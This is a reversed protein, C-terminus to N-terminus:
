VGIRSVYIRVERDVIEDISSVKFRSDRLLFGKRIEDLSSSSGSLIIVNKRGGLYKEFDLYTLKKFELGELNPLYTFSFVGTALIRFVLDEDLRPEPVTYIYFIENDIYKSIYWDQFSNAVKAKSNSMSCNIRFLCTSFNDSTSKVELGPILNLLLITASAIMSLRIRLYKLDVKQIVRKRLNIMLFYLCILSIEFIPDFYTINIFLLTFFIYRLSRISIHKEFLVLLLFHTTFVFPALYYLAALSINANFVIQYVAYLAMLVTSILLYRYIFVFHVKQFSKKVLLITFALIFPLILIFIVIKKTGLVSWPVDYVATELKFFYVIWNWSIRQFFITQFDMGRSLFMSGSLFIQGLLSGCIILFLSNLKTRIKIRFSLSLFYSTVIILVLYIYGEWANIALAFFFGAFLYSKYRSHILLGLGLIGWTNSWVSPYDQGFEYLLLPSLVMVANLLFLKSPDCELKRCVLSLSVSLITLAFFTAIYDGLTNGFIFRIVADPFIGAIRTAYYWGGGLRETMDGYNNIYSSYLYPDIHSYEGALRDPEHSTKTFLSILLNLVSISVWQRQGIVKQVLKRNEVMRAIKISAFDNFKM